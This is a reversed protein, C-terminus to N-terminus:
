RVASAPSPLEPPPMLIAAIIKGSVGNEVSDFRHAVDVCRKRETLTATLLQAKLAAFEKHLQILSRYMSVERESGKRFGIKEALMIAREALAVNHAIEDDPIPTDSMEAGEHLGDPGTDDLFAKCM